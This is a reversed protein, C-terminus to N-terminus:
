APMAVKEGESEDYYGESEEKAPAKAPAKAPPKAPEEDDLLAECLREYEEEAAQDDEPSMSQALLNGVERIREAHEANDDMLQEVEEVPMLDNMQKLIDNTQQLNRIVDMEMQKTEINTIMTEIRELHTQANSIYKERMKKQRLVIRAMDLKKAQALQRAKELELAQTREMQSQYKKVRDRCVKLELVAQDIKNQDVQGVDSKTQSAGCGM